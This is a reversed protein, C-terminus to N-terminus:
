YKRSTTRMFCFRKVPGDIISTRMLVRARDADEITVLVLHTGGSQLPEIASIRLSNAQCIRSVKGEELSLNIARTTAITQM